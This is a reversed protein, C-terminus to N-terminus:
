ADSAPLTFVVPEKATSDEAEAVSFAQDLGGIRLVRHSGTGGFTATVHSACDSPYGDTLEIEGARVVAVGVVDKGDLVSLRQGTFLGDVECTLDETPDVDEDLEVDTPARLVAHLTVTGEDASDGGCGALLTCTAVAAVAPLIM